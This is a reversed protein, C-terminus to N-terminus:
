ILPIKSTESTNATSIHINRRQKGWGGKFGGLVVGFERGKQVSALLFITNGPSRFM